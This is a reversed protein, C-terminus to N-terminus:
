QVDINLENLMWLFNSLVYQASLMYSLAVYPELIKYSSLHARFAVHYLFRVPFLLVLLLDIPYSHQSQFLM